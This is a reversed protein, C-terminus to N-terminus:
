QVVSKGKNIKRVGKTYKEQNKYFYYHSQIAQKGGVREDYKEFKQAEQANFCPKDEKDNEGIHEEKILPPIDMDYATKMKRIIVNKPGAKNSMGVRGVPGSPPRHLKLKKDAGTFDTEIM